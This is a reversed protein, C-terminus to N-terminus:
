HSSELGAELAVEEVGLTTMKSRELNEKPTPRGTNWVMKAAAAM